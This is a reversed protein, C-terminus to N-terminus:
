RGGDANIFAVLAAIEHQRLHLNPMEWDNIAHTRKIPPNALFGELYQAQYRRDTLVPGVAALTQPAAREHRHCTICGKAVFLQKGRAIDSMPRRSQNTADVVDITELTLRSQGFGSHITLTWEGPQLELSAEYEGVARAPTAFATLEQTGAKAEVRPTLGQVLTRGHQRVTFTLNFPKGAVIQDPLDEVTIVAWGGAFAVTTSLLGASVLGLIKKM